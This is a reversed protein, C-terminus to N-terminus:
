MLKSLVRGLKVKLPLAAAVERPLMNWHRVIRM